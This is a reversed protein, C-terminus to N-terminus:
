RTFCLLAYIISSNRYQSHRCKETAICGDDDYCGFCTAM